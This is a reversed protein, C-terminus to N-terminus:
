KSLYVVREDTSIFSLKDRIVEDLYDKDLSAPSLRKIKDDMSAVRMKLDANQEELMAVQKNLKYWTLLGRNGTILHYYIYFCTLVLFMPVLIFKSSKIFERFLRM